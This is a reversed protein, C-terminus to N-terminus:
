DFADTMCDSQDGAAKFAHRLAAAAQEREVVYGYNQRATTTVDDVTVIAPEGSAARRRAAAIAMDAACLLTRSRERIGAAEARKASFPRLVLGRFLVGAAVLVFGLVVFVSGGADRPM